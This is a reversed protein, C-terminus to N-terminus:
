VKKINGHYRKLLWLNSMVKELDEGTVCPSNEVSNLFIPIFEDVTLNLYQLLHGIYEIDRIKLKILACATQNILLDIPSLFQINDKIIIREQYGHLLYFSRITDIRPTKILEVNERFTFVDIDRVSALTFYGMYNGCSSGGILFDSESLNNIKKFELIANLIIGNNLIHKDTDDIYKEVIM